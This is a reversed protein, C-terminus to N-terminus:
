FPMKENVPFHEDDEKEEEDEESNLVIRSASYPFLNQFGTLREKLLAEPATLARPLKVM